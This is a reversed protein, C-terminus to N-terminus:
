RLGALGRFPSDGRVETLKPNDRDEWFFIVGGQREIPDPESDAKWLGRWRLTTKFSNEEIEVREIVFSLQTKSYQKFDQLIKERVSDLLTSSADLTAFIMREDRSEYAKSFEKLREQIRGVQKAVPSPKKPDSACATMIFFSLSFLLIKFVVQNKLFPNLFNKVPLNYHLTLFATLNSFLGKRESAFFGRM